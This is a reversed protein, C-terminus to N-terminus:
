HWRMSSGLLLMYYRGAKRSVVGPEVEAPEPTGDMQTARGSRRSRLVCLSNLYVHPMVNPREHFCPLLKVAGIGLHWCGTCPRM